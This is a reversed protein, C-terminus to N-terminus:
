INMQSDIGQMTVHKNRYATLKGPSLLLQAGAKALFFHEKYRYEAATRTCFHSLAM